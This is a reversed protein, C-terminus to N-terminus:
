SRRTKRRQDNDVIVASETPRMPKKKPHKPLIPLHTLALVMEYSPIEPKSDKVLIDTPSEEEPSPNAFDIKLQPFLEPHSPHFDNPAFMGMTIGIEWKITIWNPEEPKCPIKPISVSDTHTELTSDPEAVALPVLSDLQETKVPISDMQAFVFDVGLFDSGFCVLLVVLFKQWFPITSVLINQDIEIRIRHLQHNYFRGCLEEGSREKLFAKIEEDSQTTFDIVSKQCSQCFRGVSDVQMADWSQSCPNEIAIKAQNPTM